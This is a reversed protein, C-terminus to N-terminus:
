RDLEALLYTWEETSLDADAAKPFSSPPPALAPAETREAHAAAGAVTPYEFLLKPTLTLGRQAARAVVQLTVISDGGLAFFDDDVGVRDVHLVERWVEALVREAESRPAVYPTAGLADPAPLARRDVKGNPSLPLRALVVVLAPVMYAPLAEGVWGRLPDPAVREDGSVYAVLRKGGHAEDRAVVVAERVGAYQLLRAEIEELEVRLGRIKVQHDLRGLFAIVGDAGQRALDGTRYLRAGPQKGLPDPVFREATLAARRHYGRALQVGGIYLEGAVGPPVPQGARDLVYLETNAVPRGIPTGAAQEGPRCAWESVDIAAETPGYLNHLAVGPLRALCRRVLEGPLAEGSCFIRRLSRCASVEAANLFAELMPPVFHLTSIEAHEILAQLREPDRQDGPRALVLEAGVILPWFFEWVSVDFSFPTKQLVREDCTLTYRQQMWALRNALGAHTNGAGKPQGTSGSTYITYALEAPAVAVDPATTPERDLLARDVDLCLLQAPLTSLDLRAAVPWQSLLVPAAADQLMFSIRERPYAPDIPVYAGGAKLVGLLAVVLEISREAAVAVLVGPAVRHRRLAHALQNARQDLEGYTMTRSEFRLAIRAPERAAQAAFQQHVPALALDAFRVATQNWRALQRAGTAGLLSLAGLPQELDRTLADLSHELLDLVREAADSEFRSPDTAVRVSLRSGPSVTLTLPYNTEEDFAIDRVGLGPLGHQLQADAPYNEFVLLSEFLPQGAPVASLARAELLSVHEHAVCDATQLAVQRLYARVTQPRPVRLRLPLTNILLGTIREIGPLDASRGASTIGFLVDESRSARALVFAWAAQVLTNLTLQHQACLAVLRETRPVSLARQAVQHRGAPAADDLEGAPAAPQAGRPREFPLGTPADFDGLTARWFRTVAESPRARLWAIYDAYRPPTRLTVHQGRRAADYAAFADRLVLAASWGDLILHHHSWLLWTTSDDLRVLALRMLPGCALDFGRARDALQRSALEREQAAPELERLDAQELVLEAHARVRQLPEVGRTSFTTRLAEHTAVVQGWALRFAAVDLAGDLRCTVQEVYAARGSEWLSHFLLGQQLPSLPYEDEDEDNADACLAALTDAMSALLRELTSARHRERSFGYIVRLESAVQVADVELAYARPAAAARESGVDLDALAFLANPEASADARGLYNFSVDARVPAESPPARLQRVLAALQEAAAAQTPVSLERTVLQTFWGVTRTVDLPEAQAVGYLADRGHGELEIAVSTEGTWRQLASVLASLLVVDLQTGHRQAIRRLAVLQAGDFRQTLRESVAELESGAEDDVPLRRRPAAHPPVSSLALQQAWHGYSATPALLSAEDAYARELDEVLIRLSVGDVVLHHAAMFLLGGRAGLECWLAVLLPGARLATTRQAREALERLQADQEAASLDRLDERDFRARVREGYVQALAGGQDVFSLRLAEHRAAVREFARALRAGDLPECARLWLAQNWHDHAGVRSFFWRQIPTLPLPGAPLPQVAAPATACSLERALEAVTQHQFVQRPTLTLGQERARAVLGLAMISDGGLAFFNEHVGVTPQGLVSAFLQALSREAESRPATGEREPGHDLRPLARRDIKGQATKPLAELLVFRSPVMYDPLQERLTARLRDEHLRAGAVYAVLSREESREGVVAVAAEEIGRVAALRAEIEGLEIRFGRLKVQQDRRGVFELRGDARVRALDGTRYLRQGPATAFPDPVFSEATRAPLEAYGRALQAGGLYLEGTVGAPVLALQRDLVLASLGPLPRGIPVSPPEGLGPADLECSTAVVTSETPGYTNVLRVCSGTAAVFAAAREPLAAEGGLILLRLSQPAEFRGGADAAIRHWFSTPLDLVTIGLAGARAFFERPAEIMDDSRLVLTAGRTLCPFIEEVSADFSLSAFQLVRDGPGIGYLEGASDVFRALAGHSVLVGKPVGTSGSTYIAYAAQAPHLTAASASACSAPSGDDEAALAVHLAEVALERPLARAGAADTLLLSLRSGEILRGIRAAPYSPDIPVYAGGAKLVALVSVLAALSRELAVGVRSEACVGRARLRQALQDSRRELEGYSLTRGAHEVAIADPTQSAQAAIRAPVLLPLDDTVPGRANALAEAQECSTLLGLQSLRAGPLAVVAELLRVYHSSLRAATSREFLDCDYELAATLRDDELALELALDFTAAGSDLDLVRTELGAIAPTSRPSPQLAFFVQCLPPRSLDRRPRLAEVVRDFPVEGHAQGAQVTRQVQALLACFAPDGSLDARLVITNAFCGVLASLEPRTRGTVPTGVRVETAGAHRALLVQYASLLLSFLSVEHQQALARLDATLAATLSFFYRAGRHRQVPPRARDTPLALLEDEGALQARWYALQRKMAESDRRKSEWEAYDGYQLALPPLPSGAGRAYAEYLAAFEGLVLQTSFGDFVSHHVVWLLLHERPQLRILTLRLLPGTRLAFPRGAERAIARRLECERQADPLASLDLQELQAQVVEDVLQATHGDVTDFRTRLAEHRGVIENLAREVVAVDLTGVLRVAAPLNYAASDPELEQLFWLREQASSMPFVFVNESM